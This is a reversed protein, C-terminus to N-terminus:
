EAAQRQGAGARLASCEAMTRSARAVPNTLYFDSIPSAFAAAGM